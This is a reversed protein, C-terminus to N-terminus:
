KMCLAGTRCKDFRALTDFPHSCEESTVAAMCRNLAERDIGRPCNYANLDNGMSGKMQDMCTERSAFKAKPGVNNCTQEQDCRASALQHVVSKDVSQASTVGPHSEVPTGAMPAPQSEASIATNPPEQSAGGCALLPGLTTLSLAYLPRFTKM